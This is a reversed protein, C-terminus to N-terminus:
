NRRRVIMRDSSKTKKRTKYGKTPVGWPTVPNRGGSTKGEGGGHPHDVPNMAVGRVSPRVGMWRKAGAKGISRLSHEPNSVTGVTARCDSLVRRVEGSRLRLTAYRGEIALIQASTGASRSMQAGKGPFLEICHVVTGLPMHKLSLANGNKIPSGEGSIIEDGVKLGEPSIVYKREGDEYLILAINASRNPDYEITEVKAPVGDKTRKFDILRYHKKHGGGRHRSTIRGQNNRGSKQKKPQLLSAYPKGKHLDDRSVWSRFRRGPSTPKAKKIQTAM